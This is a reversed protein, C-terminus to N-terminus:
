RISDAHFGAGRLSQALQRRENGEGDLAVLSRLSLCGTTGAHEKLYAMGYGAQAAPQRPLRGTVRGRGAGLIPLRDRMADFYGAVYMPELECGKARVIGARYCPEPDGRYAIVVSATM